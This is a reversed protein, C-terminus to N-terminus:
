RSRSGGARKKVPPHKMRHLRASLREAPDIVDQRLRRALGNATRFKVVDMVWPYKRQLASFMSFPKQGARIILAFPVALNPIIVHAELPSSKPNSLDAIVFSSM